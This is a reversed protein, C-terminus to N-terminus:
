GVESQWRDLIKEPIQEKESEPISNMEQLFIDMKRMSEVDEETLDAKSVELNMKNAKATKELFLYEEGTLVEKVKVYLTRNQEYVDAKKKIENLLNM